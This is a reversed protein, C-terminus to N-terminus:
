QLGRIFAQGPAVGEVIRGQDVVVTGSVILYKVGVSPKTPESFTAQDQISQADFVVIDAHAGVQIRGLRKARPMVQELRQAPLLSMKRIAENLTITGKDRVYRALVRSYAGAGRPHANLGDSAIAVQPDAIIADVVEDPNMHILVLRPEALARLADFRKKTLREGSEPLQVSGYDLGRKERWGPGFFASNIFTMGATYPYAETSVDVGHERADAIIALCSPSQGLCQSNIHAIHVSAGSIVAAAIVESIAEVSSGPEIRGASRAHIYVPVRHSAALRFIEIVELRTTGPSYELGIGIGLAGSEIQNALIDLLQELQEPTAPDNAVPGDKPPPVAAAPGFQSAPLTVDMAVQRAATQSASAGFHIPSQETRASMFAEIDPVGIELELAATIGDLAQRRYGDKSQDHQHLDIFGPAVVLGSADIIRSGNLEEETVAVIHGSSIGVNRVGDLGSEPDIVRGGSVVIDFDECLASGAVVLLWLAITSRIKKNKM